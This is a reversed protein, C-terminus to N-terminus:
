RRGLWDNYMSTALADRWASSASNSEITDVYDADTDGGLENDDPIELELPDDPMENRIFNHLLYCAIIIKSQVDIPYFSQSRLIGWHVKLLGFTREIVNRASSHKLNFLEEKNQPGGAGRDWERLHYHVGRYRTLFGEANAYGNDCLYYNCVGLVNVAVQGKRIRYRGKEHDPVRVEVFTGDLAGLCGKFWEWRPDECEDIIPCPKALLVTHLKCVALLVSHFHKSVTRGSRIFDHKVVCNKKHHSIISLFMDVQEAVSINKTAKIGGSQELLCCLRGFANRDMRLNRLCTEDSGLVLRHLNRIQPPLRSNLHYRRRSVRRESLTRGKIYNIVQVIITLAVTIEVLVQQVSLLALIQRHHRMKVEVLVCTLYVVSRLPM